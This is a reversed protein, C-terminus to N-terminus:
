VWKADWLSYNRVSKVIGARLPNAVIYRAVGELDDDRRIARDYYSTQWVKGSRGILHNIRKASFAKVNNVCIHLPRSGSLSFLWHLHDPMVVFALSEVHGADHEHRMSDVVARGCSLDEFLPYWGHTATAVHYIQNPISRRGKRLKSHGQMRLMKCAALRPTM